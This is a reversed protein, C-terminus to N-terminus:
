IGLVQKIKSFSAGVRQVGIGFGILVGVDVVGVEVIALMFRPAFVKWVMLHRRLIAASVATGLLLVAYYIMIGLGAIISEGQIQTDARVKEAPKETTPPGASLPSRNWLAVLPVALAALLVPGVSNLVVTVGSLTFQM